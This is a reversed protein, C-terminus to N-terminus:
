AMGLAATKVNFSVIGLSCPSYGEIVPIGDCIFDAQLATNIM